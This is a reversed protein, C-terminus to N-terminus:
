KPEKPTTRRPNFVWGRLLVFRLVAAILNALVLASLELMRSPEPEEAIRRIMKGYRLAVALERGYKRRSFGISEIATRESM